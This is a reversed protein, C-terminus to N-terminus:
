EPLAPRGFHYGQAYDVGIEVLMRATAEDEVFEAVTKIGFEHAMGNIHEVMIRDYPDSVIHQVFSGEIKVFDVPLFKLWLFSSFGSGFDDLAIRIGSGRLEETVARVQTMNPLAERETLELVIRDCPVGAARVMEPISRIWASDNFSRPFLNFFFCARPYKRSVRAYHALGKRFVARDLEQAMGLSEAVEIFESAPVIVEGDRIRILVEFAQVSGDAVQVIPQLHVEIRDERLASRLFDGRKFVSMMSRDEKSDATMVQNKGHAKAKYLVVDMASYIEEVTKGDDPFSVLSFSATCRIKGVPLEFEKNGLSQHLKHAVQMGNAAGTEPLLIAFEDGGLRALLDGQRLGAALLGALEKLVLDGIPHGFTDNIYKFNDLDVMILSFAHGHRDSRIIEYRLVDEFKRRNYLGTLLDRISLEELKINYEHVTQLLGNFYDTLNHLERLPTGYEVRRALNMDTSIERMVNVLQAIPMVLLYRLKFYLLLLVLAFIALAYVIMNNLVSGLLVKLHTVPYTIDIVGHVTGAQSGTHCALCEQSAHVPYLYRISDRDPSLMIEEGGALVGRLAADGAVVEAEHPMAGFQAAVAASRYVKIKLEPFQRTLRAISDNIEDKTWGKRMSSYLSQFVLQSTQHANQRALERVARDRALGSLGFILAFAITLAVLSLILLLRGLSIQKVLDVLYKM